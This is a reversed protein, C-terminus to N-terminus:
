FIKEIKSKIVLHNQNHFLLETTRLIEDFGKLLFISNETKSLKLGNKETKLIIIAVFFDANKLM